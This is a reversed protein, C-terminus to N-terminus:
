CEGSYGSSVQSFSDRKQSGLVGGVRRGVGVGSGGEWWGGGLECQSVRRGRGLESHPSESNKGLAGEREM